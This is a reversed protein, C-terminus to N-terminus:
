MVGGVGGRDRGQLVGRVRASSPHDGASYNARSRAIERMCCVYVVVNEPQVGASGKM